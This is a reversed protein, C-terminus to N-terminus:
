AAERLCAVGDRLRKVQQEMEAVDDHTLNAPDLDELLTLVRRAAPQAARAKPTVLSKRLATWTSFHAVATALQDATPYREALKMRSTIESPAVKVEDRLMARIGKPLQKGEKQSLLRRGCDWRARIGADESNKIQIEIQTLVSKLDHEDTSAM